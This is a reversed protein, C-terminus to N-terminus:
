FPIEDDTIASASIKKQSGAAAVAAKKRSPAKVRVAPVNRGQFSVMASFLTIAEGRWEDTDDGYLTAITSANTKNLVLGKEQEEFYLVPKTDEGLKEMKVTAMIFTAENEVDVARLYDSPFQDSIRM